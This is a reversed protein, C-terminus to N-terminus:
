LLLVGVGVTLLTVPVGIKLYTWFSIRVGRSQALRVVILNAISGVLTLNGALTSAMALALWAREPHALAQVFPRMVLVAPVNSVLNSLVVTLASLVPVHDLQIQGVIAAVHAAVVAKEFGAVVIFLGAFMALLPWDIEAYVRSVDVRRTILMVAGACIAVAPPAFGMFFAIMMALTVMVVKLASPREVPARPTVHPRPLRKFRARTLFEGRFLLVLLAFTIILGCGAVPALASVFRDYPVGSLSGIIVNQPNGTITAVSGVNAALAVALVYPVPERELRAALDCVLPTIVLCVTDNVLFASAFGSLLMVAALLVIPRRARAAVWDNVLEFLGSFRWNAVVIMMGLLLTVTGLDIARYAEDLSLAGSAVMAAAGALAAAARDVRLGPIGGAAMAVYTLVFVLIAADIAM